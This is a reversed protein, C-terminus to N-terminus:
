PLGQPVAPGRQVWKGPNSSEWVLLTFTLNKWFNHGLSDRSEWWGSATSPPPFFIGALECHDCVWLCRGGVRGLGRQGQARCLPWPLGVAGCAPAHTLLGPAPPFHQSSLVRAPLPVSYPSVFSPCVLIEAGGGRGRLRGTIIEETLVLCASLRCGPEFLLM